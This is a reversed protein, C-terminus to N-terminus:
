GGHAITNNPFIAKMVSGMFLQKTSGGRMGLSIECKGEGGGGRVTWLRSLTSVLVPIPMKQFWLRITCCSSTPYPIGVKEKIEKFHLLFSLIFWPLCECNDLEMYFEDCNKFLEHIVGTNLM